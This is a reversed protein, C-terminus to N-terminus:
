TLDPPALPGLANEVAIGLALLESDSGSMGDLEFGVPLGQRSLGAPLSIGPVGLAGTVHTNRILTLVKSVSRGNLEIEDDRLDGGPEILPAVVPETPYVIASIRQSRFMAEYSAALQRRLTTRAEQLTAPPTDFDRATEFLTKTDKSAIRAIVDEVRLKAGVSALYGRLDGKIGNMVLTRYLLTAAPYYSGTDIDVLVAGAARLRELCDRSVREVEPELDEWYPRYPVGLRVNRLSTLPAVREGSIANHLLAVDAVTRAMPGVTDLDLALPVVGADPYLKAPLITPRLAATGSLAAPIRVSGATDSGLGAPVIRAALAASTGGSSGGPVRRRDYPNRVAGYSANSSTGGGALEHMNARAFFLAGADLLRQVVPAHRRAINDQLAFSGASNPTGAVDINDKVIVPLGGLTGLQEGRARRRDAARADEQVRAADIWTITNLSELERARALCREAFAEAALEGRAIRGVVQAAPLELLDDATRPGM